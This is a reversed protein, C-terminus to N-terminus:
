LRLYGAPCDELRYIEVRVTVGDRSEERSLSSAVLNPDREAM